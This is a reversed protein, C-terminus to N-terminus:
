VEVAPRGDQPVLLLKGVEVALDNTHFAPPVHLQPVPQKVAEVVALSHAELGDNPVCHGVSVVQSHILRLDLLNGSIRGLAPPLALHAVVSLGVVTHLEPDVLVLVKREVLYPDAMLPLVFGRHTPIFHNVLVIVFECAPGHGIKWLSHTPENHSEGVQNTVLHPAPRLLGPLDHVQHGEVARSRRGTIAETHQRLVDDVRRKFLQPAVIALHRLLYVFIGAAVTLLFTRTGHSVASSAPYTRGSPFYMRLIWSAVAPCVCLPLWATVTLYRTSLGSLNLPRVVFMMYAKVGGP